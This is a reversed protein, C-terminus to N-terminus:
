LTIFRAGLQEFANAADRHCTTVIVQRSESWDRICRCTAAFRNEDWNVFAEDFIVPLNGEPDLLDIMALRFALFLQNLTGKSFALSIPLIRDGMEVQLASDEQLYVNRYKEETMFRLYRSVNKLFEPQNKQRYRADAYKLISVVAMYLSRQENLFHMRETAMQIDSDIEDIARSPYGNEIQHKRNNQEILLNRDEENLDKLVTKEAQLEEESLAYPADWNAVTEAAEPTAELMEKLTKINASLRMAERIKEIGTEFDGVGAERIMQNKSEVSQRMEQLTQERESLRGSVESYRARVGSLDRESREIVMAEDVNRKLRELFDPGEQIGLPLCRALLDEKATKLRRESEELAREASEWQDSDHFIAEVRPFFEFTEDQWVYDPLLHRVTENSRMEKMARACNRRIWWGGVGVAIGGAALIGGSVSVIGGFLAFAAGAVVMSAGFLFYLLPVGNKERNKKQYARVLVKIEAPNFALREAKTILRGFVAKCRNEYDARLRVATSSLEHHREEESRLKEIPTQLAIWEARADAIQQQTETYVPIKEFLERKEESLKEVTEALGELRKKEDEYTELFSTSVKPARDLMSTMTEIQKIKADAPLWKELADIKLKSLRIREALERGADERRQQEEKLREVFIFAEEAERRESKLKQIEHGLLTMEPKGRNDQRWIANIEQVLGDIVQRVPQLYDSGFRATLRQQIDSWSEEELQNLTEADIHFVSAYLSEGVNSVWPLADNRGTSSEHTCEKSLIMKPASMLRRELSFLEGSQEIKSFLDIKDMDWHVYPHKERSAPTFGYIVTKLANFVTSKGAENEGFLVTLRDDFPITEDIFKGYPRLELNKIIM